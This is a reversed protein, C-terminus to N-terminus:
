RTIEMVAVSNNGRPSAHLIARNFGHLEEVGDRLREVVEGSIEGEESKLIIYPTVDTLQLTPIGEELTEVESTVLGFQEALDLVTKLVAKDSYIVTLNPSSGFTTM